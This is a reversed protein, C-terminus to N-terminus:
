KKLDGIFEGWDALGGVNDYLSTIDGIGEVIKKEV